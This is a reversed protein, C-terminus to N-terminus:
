ESEERSETEHRQEPVDSGGTVCRFGVSNSCHEASEIARVTTRHFYASRFDASGGRYSRHGDGDLQVPDRDSAIEHADSLYRDICWEWVNGAMGVCGFPSKGRPLSDVPLLDPGLNCLFPAENPDKDGWPFRRGDDGRAAREWEAETPLRGGAWFAYESALNWPVIAPLRGLGPSPSITGADEVFVSPSRQKSLSQLADARTMSPLQTLFVAFQANSVVFRDITYASLHVTRQPVENAPDIGYLEAILRRESDHIGMLFEGAPVSVTPMADLERRGYVREVGHASM